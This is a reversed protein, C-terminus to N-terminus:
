SDVGVVAGLELHAQIRSVLAELTPASDLRAPVAEDGIGRLRAFLPLPRDFGALQGGLDAASSRSHWTHVAVALHSPDRAASEVLWTMRGVPVRGMDAACHVPVGAAALADCTAMLLGSGICLVAVGTPPGMDVIEVGVLVGMKAFITQKEAGHGDYQRM